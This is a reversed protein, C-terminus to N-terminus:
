MLQPQQMAEQHASPYWSTYSPIYTGPTGTSTKGSSSTTNWVPPVPPSSASLARGNALASSELAAGGQKMLKKFKSRKNQFWIKVQTQTLGLSAALEAREPLALYQTQQFRRNLAQLQLSSYITRPKRIKKGKGNFRVEGGEVVTSKESDAGTEELRTQTLSSSNPYSQVSSIYPNSSHSSVSNVYPYGLPRSFSSATSYSSDPQSHGASHLCHMSYHGHSMPSPSMQQSPPGFEMFVAKGSVPSNLSEPMTTMTM